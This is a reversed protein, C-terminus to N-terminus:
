DGGEPVAEGRQEVSGATDDGGTRRGEDGHESAQGRPDPVGDAPLVPVHLPREERPQELQEQQVRVGGDATRDDRRSTAREHEAELKSLKERLSELEALTQRHMQKQYLGYDTLAVNDREMRAYHEKEKQRFTLAKEYTDSKRPALASLNKGYTRSIDELYSNHM